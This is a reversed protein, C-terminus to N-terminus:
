INLQKPNLMELKRIQRLADETRSWGMKLFTNHKSFRPHEQSHHQQHAQRADAPDGGRTGFGLAELESLARDYPIGQNGYEAENLAVLNDM